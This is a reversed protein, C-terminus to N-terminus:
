FYGLYYGRVPPLRLLKQVKFNNNLIKTDKLIFNKNCILVKWHIVSIGSCLKSVQARWLGDALSITILYSILNEGSIEVASNIVTKGHHVPYCHFSKSNLCMFIYYVHRNQTEFFVFCLLSFQLDKRVCINLFKYYMRQLSTCFM